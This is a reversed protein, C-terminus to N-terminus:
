TELLQIVIAFLHCAIQYPKLFISFAGDWAIREMMACVM